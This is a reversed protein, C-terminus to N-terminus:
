MRKRELLPVMFGLGANELVEATPFGNEDLGRIGYYERRMLDEDPVSGEAGGETLPTLVRKPLCDDARTVGMMNNLARKLLWARSGTSQFAQMDFGLGAISNFGDILSQPRMSWQVFHCICVANAMQGINESLFVMNAKGVSQTAPYDDALGSETWSVMGQEVAQVSHQLHCAGRNSNMYSLGQGHFARPDHM